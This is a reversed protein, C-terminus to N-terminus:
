ITTIAVLLTSILRWIALCVANNQHLFVSRVLIGVSLRRVGYDKSRICATCQAAIKRRTEASVERKDGKQIFKSMELEKEDTSWANVM